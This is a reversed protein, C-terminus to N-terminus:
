SPCPDELHLIEDAIRGADQVIDPIGVGHYAGGALYLGTHTAAVRDVEAIRAQHGVEYQPNAKPWRYVRTLVPQASIGMSARIEERAMEALAADDQEVLHEAHAGGIFVRLLAHGEPARDDFKTSSWTCAIIKRKESRPVVFGFGQLSHGLEAKRFGFSVTATSVYRIRELSAALDPDIPRLLEATVFAPTAFVVLEAELRRGDDLVISYTAGTQKVQVARRNVLLSEPKLREVIAGTMESLGGRLTMFM